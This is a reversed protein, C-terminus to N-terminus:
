KQFKLCTIEEIDGLGACSIIKEASKVIKKDALLLCALESKESTSSKHCADAMESLINKSVLCFSQSTESRTDSLCSKLLKNSKKSILCSEKINESLSLNQCIEKKDLQEKKLERNKQAVEM